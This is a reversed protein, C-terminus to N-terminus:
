GGTPITTPVGGGPPTAPTSPARIGSARLDVDEREADLAAVAASWTGDAAALDAQARELIKKGLKEDAEPVLAFTAAAARYQAIAQFILRNAVDVEFPAEATQTTLDTQAESLVGEWREADQQLNKSDAAATVMESAPPGVKQLLVEIVGTFEEMAAQRRELARQDDRANNIMFLAVGLIVLLTAAAAIRGVTTQYWPTSRGSAVSPRPPAGPRRSRQRPKRKKGKIAM